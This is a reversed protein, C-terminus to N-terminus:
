KNDIFRYDFLWEDFAKLQANSLRSM